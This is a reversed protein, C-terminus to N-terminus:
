PRPESASGASPALLNEGAKRLASLIDQQLNEDHLARALMVAGVNQAMLTWADESTATLRQLKAHIELLGTQYAVKVAEDARAIEPTLSPLPCGQEPHRVHQLSLYGALSRAASNRDAPDFGDYMQATRALEAAILAAFLNAKGDFHKYLAGTTVGAAAALSAMGSENFGHEKAHSGGLEILRQRSADKHDKPYRM